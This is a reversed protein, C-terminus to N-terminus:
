RILEFENGQGTSETCQVYWFDEVVDMSSGNVVCLLVHRDVYAHGSSTLFIRWEIFYRSVPDNVQVLM